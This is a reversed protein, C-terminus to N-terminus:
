EKTSKTIIAYLKMGSEETPNVSMKFIASKKARDISKLISRAVNANNCSVSKSENATQRLANEEHTSFNVYWDNPRDEDQYFGANLSADLGITRCFGTSFTIVGRENLSISSDSQRMTTKEIKKIRM